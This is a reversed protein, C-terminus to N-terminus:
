ICGPFDCQLGQYERLFYNSTEETPINLSQNFDKAADYFFSWGNCFILFEALGYKKCINYICHQICNMHKTIDTIM